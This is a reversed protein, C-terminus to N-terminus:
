SREKNKRGCPRTLFVEGRGELLIECNKAKRETDFLGFVASGSGTMMAGLTGASAMLRKVDKVQMLKMAEDFRNSLRKGILRLDGAELADLMRPTAQARAPPYRDLLAYARPTSIGAPPKCIVVFCDPLPPVPEVTEGAGTCRCTGGHVCFPVDAGVRAGLEMLAPTGLNTGFLGDLGRLVAAADASGGGLGARSPINKQLSIKVGENQLGCHELFLAAARFATNKADVPLYDRDCRIRVGPKESREIEVEDCLSVSQMITDLTHFGDERRGTVDLTLNIKAYAKQKM